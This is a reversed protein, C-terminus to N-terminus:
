RHRFETRATVDHDTAALTAVAKYTGPSPSPMRVEFTISEDAELTTSNCVMAYARDDSARWVITDQGTPTVTVDFRKGDRFRLTVPTPGRNSVRYTFAIGEDLATASLDSGLTM